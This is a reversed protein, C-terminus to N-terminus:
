EKEAHFGFGAAANKKAAAIKRQLTSISRGAVATFSAMWSGDSHVEVVEAADWYMWIKVNPHPEPDWDQAVVQKRTLLEFGASSLIKDFKKVLKAPVKKQLVKLFRPTVEEGSELEIYKM